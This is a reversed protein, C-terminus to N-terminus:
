VDTRPRDGRTKRLFDHGFAGYSTTATRGSTQPALRPKRSGGWTGSRRLHSMQSRWAPGAPGEGTRTRHRDGALLGTAAMGGMVFGLPLVSNLPKALNRPGTASPFGTAPNM